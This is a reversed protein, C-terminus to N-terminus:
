KKLVISAWDKLRKAEAEDRMIRIKNIAYIFVVLLLVLIVFIGVYKWANSKQKKSKSDHSKHTNNQNEMEQDDTNQNNVNQDEMEQGDTNQNNLNQDDM